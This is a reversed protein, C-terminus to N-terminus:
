SLDLIDVKGDSHEIAWMPTLEIWEDTIRALYVPHVSRIEAWDVDSLRSLLREGGPLTYPTIEASSEDPHILSREYGVATGQKMTVQINGYQQGRQPYIPLSDYYQIFRFVPDTGKPLRDLLYRGNWGGHQNVFQVASDLQVALDAPSEVPAAPDSYNMWKLRHDIQLGRKGDTIIEMGEQQLISRSTGPNVFLSNRLQEPTYETYRMKVAPSLELPEVPVYIDAAIREFLPHVYRGFNVYQTLEPLSIDLRGAERWGYETEFLARVRGVGSNPETEAFLWLRSLWLPEEEPVANLNMRDALVSSPVLTRFRIEIGAREDKMASLRATTGPYVEELEGFSHQSLRELIMRFFTDGPYLVTHRGEGFHIVMDKPNVLQPLEAHEGQLEAEIYEPSDLPIIDPKNYVLQLTQLLSTIILVALVVSKVTEKM